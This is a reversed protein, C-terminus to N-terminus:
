GGGSRKNAKQMEAIIASNTTRKKGQEKNDVPFNPLRKHQLQDAIYMCATDFCYAAYPDDLDMLESPRVKWM